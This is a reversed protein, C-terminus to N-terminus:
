GDYILMGKNDDDALGTLREIGEIPEPFCAFAARPHNRYDIDNCARYCILALIHEIGPCTGFYRNGGRLRVAGLKNEDLKQAKM